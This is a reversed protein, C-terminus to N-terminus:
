AGVNEETDMVQAMIDMRDEYSLNRDLLLITLPPRMTSGTAPRRAHVIVSDEGLDTVDIVHIGENM